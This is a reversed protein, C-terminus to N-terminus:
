LGIREFYALWKKFSEDSIAHEMQCAEEEAVEKFAFNEFREMFQADTKVTSM